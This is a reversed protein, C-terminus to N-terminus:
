APLLAFLEDASAEFAGIDITMEDDGDGDQFRWSRRQDFILDAALENSGADIAFSGALLAHTKTPGGNDALPALGATQSGTLVINGNVGNSLGGSGGLGMLNYSSASQLNNHGAYDSNATDAANRNDAVITNHLTVLTHVTSSQWTTTLGGGWDGKNGTITTNRIVMTAGYAIRIGGTYAGTNGSITSNTISGGGTTSISALEQLQIGGGIGSATNGSITSRDIKLSDTFALHGFIGGGYVAENGDITSESIDVHSSTTFWIGGGANTAENGTVRVGRLRLDGDAKIGGGNGIVSGGTVSLGSITAQVGTVISFVRSNGEADITLFDSGPGVIEVNSNINLNGLTLAISQGSLSDRFVIVDDGAQIFARALAERLTVDGISYDSDDSEDAASSVLIMGPEISKWNTVDTGLQTQIKLWDSGNVYGDGDVDGQDHSAGSAGSSASWIAIDASNVVNDHNVDAPAITARFRFKGGAVGDGSPLTSSSGSPDALTWPNNFEGDLANGAADAVSDDLVLLLQEAPFVGSALQWTAVGADWGSYNLAYTTGTKVGHATLEGGNLLVYESFALHVTDIGGMPVARLQEGSGTPVSYPTHTSSSGDFWVGNIRPAVVDVFAVYDLGLGLKATLADLDDNDVDGDGDIDGDTYVADSAIIGLNTLLIDEDLSDVVNDLNFDGPLVTAYFTFAGGAVGDGAGVASLDRYADSQSALATPNLWETDVYDSNADVVGDALSIVLQDPPLPGDAIRWTATWTQPNFGQYLLKYRQGSDAGVVSLEDGALTVDATFTLAITDAGGVPVTRLQDGSGTPVSYATHSSGSGSFAVGAITTFPTTAADALPLNRFDRGNQQQWKLFDTGDNVGNGDTDGKVFDDGTGGFNSRWIILDEGNVRNDRNSDAPLYVFDFNFNGQTSGNGSPLQSTGTQSLSTPNNAFEGDLRAGQNSQLTDLLRIRYAGAPLAAGLTWTLRTNNLSLAPNGVSVTAGTQKNTLTLKGNINGSSTNLPVSFDLIIKNAGGIPVSRLQQGSGTPISYSGNVGDLTNPGSITVGTVALATVARQANVRGYGYFQNFGATNYATQGNNGGVKDATKRMISLIESPKLNPNVSLMLAAIGATMPTASSTGGFTADYNGVAGAATNYGDTGTRDTTTIDAFGGDSPAVLDLAAGYQSYHSRYDWDTSAGVGIVNANNAPYMVDVDTNQVLTPVIGDLTGNTISLLQNTTHNWLQLRLTDGSESSQWAYLTASMISNTTSNTAIAPAMIYAVDNNGIATSRAQYRGTGHARAPNDEIYWGDQGVFPVMTWGAPATLTDWRTNTGDDNVFRGLRVTDEGAILSGNKQYSIVWSLNANGLSSVDVQRTIPNYQETDSGQRGAASNGAAAFATAGRGSRGNTTAWTLAADMAAHATLGGLGFSMNIIDAADWTGLGNATRGAAYYVATAVRDFNQFVNNQTLKVPLIRANQASGSVGLANNGRAGAVGAVATGHNEDSHTPNANNNGAGSPGFNWGNVDDIWGNNDDDIGNGAIEGPNIFINLDPHTTQVGDDLVAIVIDNNGTTVNWAEEHDSDADAQAGLQSTNNLHWQNAFLPDNPIVARQFDATGNPVAWAVLPDLQLRNALSLTELGAGVALTGIYQDPTGLLPRFGSFEPTSFFEKPNVGARLSVIVENNIALWSGHEGFTFLPAAWEVGAGKEISPLDPLPRGAADNGITILFRGAGLDKTAFGDLVGDGSTLSDIVNASGSEAGVSIVFADDARWLAIKETGNWYFDGLDSVNFAAYIEEEAPPRQHNSTDVVQAPLYGEAFNLEFVELTDPTISLYRRDELSEFCGRPAKSAVRKSNAKCVRVSRFWQSVRM